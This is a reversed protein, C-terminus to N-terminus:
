PVKGFAVHKHDLWPAASTAIFFQCGNTNAGRSAMAVIGPMTFNVKFNEDPFVTGFISTSGRGDGYVVDGGQVLSNKIVRHFKSGTYSKGEFGDTALTFFNNVTQPVEKGFLGIELDGLIESDISITFIVRHTVELYEVANTNQLNSFCLIQVILFLLM